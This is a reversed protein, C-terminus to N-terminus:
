DRTWALLMDPEREENDRGDTERVVRFGKREYFRRAEGNRQFAWLSLAPESEQAKRLLASGIGKGHFAADVYLHDIWGERYAIFGVIGGAEAVLVTCTEMVHGGFFAVDEAPTHLVPLYPLKAARVRRFLEAIAPADAPGARRFSCAITMARLM